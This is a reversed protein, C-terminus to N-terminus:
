WPTPSGKSDYHWWKGSQFLGPKSASYFYMTINKNKDIVSSGLVFRWSAKDGAFFLKLAATEEFANPSIKAVGQHILISPAKTCKSFAHRSIEKVKKPITFCPTAKARPYCVLSVGDKTYLVGDQSMFFPNNSSVIIEKLSFSQLNEVTVERLSAPLYIKELYNCQNFVSGSLAKVGNPIVVTKLMRNNIGIITTKNDNLFQFSTLPTPPPFDKDQTTQPTTPKPTPKPPPNTTTQPAPKPEPKPQPKPTPETSQQITPAKLACKDFAAEGISAKANQIITSSLKPCNYFASDGISTVSPPITIRTISSNSFAWSPIETLSESLTVTDLASGYAFSFIGIRTVSDPITITKLYVTDCVAFDEITTVGQPISLNTNANGSPYKILKKGSIDYLAGGFLKFTKNSQDVMFHHLSSCRRIARVDIDVLSGPIGLINLNKCGEFASQCVSTTGDPIKFTSDPKGPAFRILKVENGKTYLNGDIEQFWNNQPSVIFKSISHCSTFTSNDITKLTSPIAVSRLSIARSFVIPGLATIGEPIILHQLNPDNVAKLITGDKVELYPPFSTNKVISQTSPMPAVQPKEQPTPAPAKKEPIFDETVYKINDETPDLAILLVGIIRRANEASIMDVDVLTAIGSTIAIGREDKSAEIIKAYCHSDIGKEIYRRVTANESGPAIDRLIGIIKQPNIRILRMGDHNTLLEELAKAARKVIEM